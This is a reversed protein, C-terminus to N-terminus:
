EPDGLANCCPPRPAALLTNRDAVPASTVLPFVTAYMGNWALLDFRENVVCSPVGTFADLVQQVEAPLPCDECSALPDTGPADALRFMHAREIADLRLTRAIADLVQTSANIPRGQELWTYWTVGM